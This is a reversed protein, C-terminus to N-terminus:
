KTIPELIAAFFGDCRHIGPVTRLYSGAALSNVDTSVLEGTRRLNELEAHVDVVRINQNRALAREVV